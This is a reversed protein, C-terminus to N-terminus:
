RWEVKLYFFFFFYDLHKISRYKVGHHMERNQQAKLNSNNLYYSKVIVKSFLNNKLITFFITLLVTKKHCVFGCEFQKRIKDWLLLM